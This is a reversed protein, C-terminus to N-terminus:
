FVEVDGNTVIVVVSNSARSAGIANKSRVRYEYRGDANFMVVSETTDPGLEDAVTVEGTSAVSLLEFATENSSEDNWQFRVSTEEVVGSLSSPALPKKQETTCIMEYVSYSVVFENDSLKRIPYITSNNLLVFKRTGIIEFEYERDPDSVSIPNFSGFKVRYEGNDETVILSNSREVINSDDTIPEDPTGSNTTTFARCTNTGILDRADVLGTALSQTEEIVDNVVSATIVDGDKFKGAQASLGLTSTAILTGLLLKKMM